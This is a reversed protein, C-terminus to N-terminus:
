RGCGNLVLGPAGPNAGAGIHAKPPIPIAMDGHRSEETPELM